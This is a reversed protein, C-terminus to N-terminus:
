AQLGDHKDTLTAGACQWIQLLAGPHLGAPIWTGDGINNKANDHDENADNGYPLATM